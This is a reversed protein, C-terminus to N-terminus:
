YQNRGLCAAEVDASSFLLMWLARWHQQWIVRIYVFLVVSLCCTEELRLLM